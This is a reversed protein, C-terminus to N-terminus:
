SGPVARTAPAETSAVPITAWPACASSAKLLTGIFVAASACILLAPLLLVGVATRLVTELSEPPHAQSSQSM